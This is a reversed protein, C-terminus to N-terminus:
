EVTFGGPFVTVMSPGIEVVFMSKKTVLTTVVKTVEVSAMMVIV